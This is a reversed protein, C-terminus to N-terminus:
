EVSWPETKIPRLRSALDPDAYIRIQPFHGLNALLRVIGDGPDLDPGFLIRLPEKPDILPSTKERGRRRLAPGRLRRIEEPSFAALLVEQSQQGASRLM